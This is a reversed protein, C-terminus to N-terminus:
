RKGIAFHCTPNKAPHYLIRRRRQTRVGVRHSGTSKPVFEPSSVEALEGLQVALQQRVLFEEDEVLREVVPM